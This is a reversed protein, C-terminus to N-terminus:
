LLDRPTAWLWPLTSSVKGAISVVEVRNGDYEDVDLCRWDDESLTVCPKFFDRTQVRATSKLVAALKM